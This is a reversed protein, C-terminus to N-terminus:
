ESLAEIARQQNAPSSQLDVIALQEDDVPLSGNIIARLCNIVRQKIILLPKRIMVRAGVVVTEILL